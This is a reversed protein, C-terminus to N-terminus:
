SEYIDIIRELLKAGDHTGDATRLDDSSEVVNTVADKESVGWYYAVAALLDSTSWEATDGYFDLNEVLIKKSNKIDAINLSERLTLYTPFLSSHQTGAGYVIIDANKIAYLCDRNVSPVGEIHLARILSNGSYDSIAAETKLTEGNSLEGSLKGPDKTVSLINIPVKFLNAAVDIADQFKGTALYLGAIMGNGIAVDNVRLNLEAARPLPSASVINKRFDSIGPLGHVMDRLLGTSKGDDFSNIILTTSIDSRKSLERVLSASGRGGCFLVLNVM